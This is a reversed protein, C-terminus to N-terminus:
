FYIHNKVKISKKDDKKLKMLFIVLKLM